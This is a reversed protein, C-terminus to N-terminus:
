DPLHDHRICARWERPLSNPRNVDADEKQRDPQYECELPPSLHSGEHEPRADDDIAPSPPPTPGLPCPGRSHSHPHTECVIGAATSTLTLLMVSSTLSPVLLVTKALDLHRGEPHFRHRTKPESPLDHPCLRSISRHQVPDCGAAPFHRYCDSSSFVSTTLVTMPVADPLPPPFDATPCMSLSQDPILTMRRLRQLRPAIFRVVFSCFPGACSVAFDACGLATNVPVTQYDVPSTVPFRM